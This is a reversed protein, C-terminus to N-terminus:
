HSMYRLRQQQFLGKGAWTDAGPPRWPLGFLWATTANTPVAAKGAVQTGQKDTAELARGM